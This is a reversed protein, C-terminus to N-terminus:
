DIMTKNAAGPPVMPFVNESYKIPVNIFVPEQLALASELDQLPNVSKELDIATIGFAKAIAAFDPIVQFQSAIYKQGFFLEQQQRVLGLYGNNFLVIALNPKQEAITAMEQINMLLSGDGSFCVVKKDPNALAAGIGAPVGFGMTGLGGSSLFTRSKTFPYKMAVWMQHQGVDTSIITDSPVHSAIERIIRLPHFVDDNDPASVYPLEKKKENVEKLWQARVDRVVYPEVTEIFNIIDANVSIHSPKIKNIEAKDIDVHIIKANKCFESVKGTARDDFRVGLAIVLDAEEILQNAYKTGHMGIMGLYLPHSPQFCGLGRLTSTVPINNKEAIQLLQKEAKSEIIGAGVFLIPRESANIMTAIEVAKDKTLISQKTPPLFEPWKDFTCEQLQVDKPVDIVVPGPRGSEAIHFALPIVELLEAASRVLFNHKTIPITLGYTDIEQFADTGI